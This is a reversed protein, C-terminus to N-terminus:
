SVFREPHDRIFRVAADGHRLQYFESDLEPLSSQERAQVYNEILALPNDTEYELQEDEERLAVDIARALIQALKEEKLPKLGELTMLAWDIGKNFFFQHFGGNTVEAELWWYLHVARCGDPVSEFVEVENDYGALEVQLGVSDHIVDILDSDDSHKLVTLTIKEHRKRNRVREIFDKTSGKKPGLGTLSGFERWLLWFPDEAHVSQYEFFQKLSSSFILLCSVILYVVGIFLTFEFAPAIIEWFFSKQEPPTAAYLVPLIQITPSTYFYAKM